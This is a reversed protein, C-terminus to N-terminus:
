AAVTPAFSFVAHIDVVDHSGLLRGLQTVIGPAVKYPSIWKRAYIRTAGQPLVVGSAQEFDNRHDTALTTVAVGTGGLSGEM